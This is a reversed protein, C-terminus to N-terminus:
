SPNHVPCTCVELEQDGGDFYEGVIGHLISFWIALAKESGDAPQVDVAEGSAHCAKQIRLTLERRDQTVECQRTHRNPDWGNNDMMIRHRKDM